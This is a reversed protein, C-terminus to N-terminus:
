FIDWDDRPILPSTGTGEEAPRPSGGKYNVGFVISRFEADKGQEVSSPQAASITIVTTSIAGTIKYTYKDTALPNFVSIRSSCDSNPRPVITEINKGNVQGGAVSVKIQSNAGGWSYGFLSLEFDGVVPTRFSISGTKEATGIKLCSYENGDIICTQEGVTGSTTCSKFDINSTYVDGLVEPDPIVLGATGLRVEAVLPFHDSIYQIGCYEKDITQFKRLSLCGRALIHDLISFNNGWNNYTPKEDTELSNTRLESLTYKLVTLPGSYPKCNLDGGILVAESSPVISAIRDKVLELGKYCDYTDESATHTLFFWFTVESGKLKFKSYICTRPRESAGSWGTSEPTDPTPSLWFKGATGTVPELKQPNYFIYNGDTDDKATTLMSYETLEACLDIRQNDRVESLGAIDPLQERMMAYVGTKRVEWGRGKDIDTQSYSTRINFYMAKLNQYETTPLIVEGMYMLDGKELSLPGALTRVIKESDSTTFTFELGNQYTGPLLAVCYKGPGIFKDAKLCVVDNGDTLNTSQNSYLVELKGSLASGSVSRVCIERIEPSKDSIEFQLYAAIHSFHLDTTPSGAVMLSSAADFSGTVAKQEKKLEVVASTAGFSTVAEEPSVAFYRDSVKIAGTGYFDAKAANETISTSYVAPESGAGAFLALRDSPTWWISTTGNLVTKVSPAAATFCDPTLPLEPQLQGNDACAQAAILM